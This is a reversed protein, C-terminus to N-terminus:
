RGVKRAAELAARLQQAAAAAEEKEREAAAAALEVQEDDHHHNNNGHRRLPRFSPMCEHTLSLGVGRTPARWGALHPLSAAPARDTTGVQQKQKQEQQQQRSQQDLLAAQLQEIELALRRGCSVQEAELLRVAEEHESCCCGAM